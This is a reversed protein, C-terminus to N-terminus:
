RFFDIYDLTYSGLLERSRKKEAPVGSYIYGEDAIGKFTSGAAILAKAGIESNDLIIARAGIWVNDKIIVKGECYEFTDSKRKHSASLIMTQLSISTNSGIELGGRGDLVCKENVTTNDGIIINWPNILTCKMYIRSGKGIKLGFLKYLIKRIHWCPIYAVFYNLFIYVLSYVIQKLYKRM